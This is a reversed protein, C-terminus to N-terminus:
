GRQIMTRVGEETNELCIKLGHLELIKRTLFLGMGMHKEVKSRSEDGSYFIEFARSLEEETMSFGTNEVTCGNKETIIRISGDPVNYAVANSLINWVAKELYGRDGEVLFDKECRWQIRIRKEEIVPSFRELQERFIEAFSVPEKRLVLQGSDLRSVTIMEAVLHDMEETQRIIQEVYYDRKEEMTWEQLNEAFGRIIGLPTKLEHAMANTFDKRTEELLEQKRYTQNTVYIIEGACIVMLVLGALYIYKMYDMAALWPHCEMRLELYCLIDTSYYAGDLIRDSQVPIVLREQGSFPYSDQTFEFYKLFYSEGNDDEEIYLHEEFDHLYASDSWEQWKEEGGSLCYPFIVQVEELRSQELEEASVDPSTWEWVIRSGIERFNNGDINWSYGSETLPDIFTVSNESLNWTVEQVVIGGPESRDETLRALVRYKEPFAPDGYLNKLRYNALEEM